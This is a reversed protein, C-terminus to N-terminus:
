GFTTWLAAGLTGNTTIGADYFSQGSTTDWWWTGNCLSGTTDNHADNWETMEALTSMGYLEDDVRFTWNHLWGGYGVALLTNFAIAHNVEPAITDPHGAGYPSAIATM